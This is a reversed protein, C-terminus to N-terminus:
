VSEKCEVVIIPGLLDVQTVSTNGSTSERRRGLRMRKWM